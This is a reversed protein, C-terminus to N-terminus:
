INHVSQYLSSNRDNMVRAGGWFLIRKAPTRWSDGLAADWWAVVDDKGLANREWPRLTRKFSDRQTFVV